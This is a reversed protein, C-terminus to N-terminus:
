QDGIKKQPQTDIWADIKEPLRFEQVQGDNIDMLFFKMIGNRGVDFAYAIKNGNASFDYGSMYSRGKTLRRISGKTKQIDDSGEWLFLDYNYGYVRIGDVEHLDPDNADMENTVMSFTVRHALPAVRTSIALPQETMVKTSQLTDIKIVAMSERHATNGTDPDTYREDFQILVHESDSLFKPRSYSYSDLKTIRKEIGKAHDLVCIERERQRRTNGKYPTYYSESLYGACQYTLKRGDPSFSPATRIGTGKTVVRYDKGEVTMIAIHWNDTGPEEVPFALLKSDMSFTPTGWRAGTDNRYSVVKDAEFDYIAITCPGKEGDCVRYALRDGEFSLSWDVHGTGSYKGLSDGGLMWSDRLVLTLVLAIVVITGLAIFRSRNTM